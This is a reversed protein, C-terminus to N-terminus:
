WRQKGGSSIATYADVLFNHVYSRVTHGRGSIPIKILVSEAKGLTDPNSPKWQIRVRPMCCVTFCKGEM